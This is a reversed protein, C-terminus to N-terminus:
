NRQEFWRVFDGVTMASMLYYTSMFQAESAQRWDIGEFAKWTEMMAQVDLIRNVLPDAALSNLRQDIAEADKKMRFTWDVDQRGRTFNMRVAEPILHPMGMRVLRREVGNRFFIDEPLALCFEVVRRDAGPSRTDLGYRSQFFDAMGKGPHSYPRARQQWSDLTTHIFSDDGRRETWRQLAGSSEAFEAKVVSLQTPREVERRRMARRMRKIANLGPTQLLEERVVDQIKGRHRRLAMLEQVLSLWRWERQLTRLRAVGDYSFTLNGMSGNFMVRVGDAVARRYLVQYGSTFTAPVGYTGNASSFEASQGALVPEDGAHVFNPRLNPHFRAIHEVWPREDNYTRGDPRLPTDPAPVRTYGLLVKGRTALISAAQGAIAASDLGGSMQIGVPHISRLQSKVVEEFLAGFAEWAEEERNFRLRQEPDPAWYRRIEGGGAHYEAWHAHFVMHIDRFLSETSATNQLLLDGLGAENLQKPIHPLAFLGQPASAFYLSTGNRHVFLANGFPASRALILRRAAADWFAVSFVGIMHQLSERGWRRWALWALESDAMLRAGAEAMGLRRTLDPRNDLRGDFLYVGQRDGSLPQRDFRDEPTIHSRRIVFGAGQGIAFREADRGFPELAQGMRELDHRSVPEGDFHVIGAIASM